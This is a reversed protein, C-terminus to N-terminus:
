FPIQDLDSYEVWNKKHRDWCPNDLRSAQYYMVGQWWLDELFYLLMLSFFSLTPICFEFVRSSVYDDILASYEFHQYSNFMFFGFFM